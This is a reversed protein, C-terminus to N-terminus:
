DSRNEKSDDPDATDKGTGTLLENDVHYFSDNPAMKNIEVRLDFVQPHFPFLGIARNFWQKTMTSRCGYNASLLRVLSCIFDPLSKDARNKRLLKQIMLISSDIDGAQLRNRCLHKLLAVNLDFDGFEKRLRTYLINAEEIDISGGRECYHQIIIRGQRIGKDRRKQRIYINVLQSRARIKEPNHLLVRIIRNELNETDLRKATQDAADLNAQIMDGLGSEEETSRSINLARAVNSPGSSELGPMNQSSGTMRRKWEDIGNEGQMQKDLDSLMPLLIRAGGGALIGGLLASFPATAYEGYANMGIQLPFWAASIVIDRNRKTSCLFQFAVISSIAGTPGVLNRGHEGFILWSSTSFLAGVALLGLFSKPHFAQELKWGVLMLFAISILLHNWSTHAFLFFEYGKVQDDLVQLTLSDLNFSGRLQLLFFLFLILAFFASIIPISSASRSM